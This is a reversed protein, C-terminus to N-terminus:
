IDSNFHSLKSEKLRSPLFAVSPKTILFIRREIQVKTKQETEAVKFHILCPSFSSLVPGMWAPVRSTLALQFKHWPWPFPWHGLKNKQKCLVEHAGSLPSFFTCSKPCHGVVIFLTRLTMRQASTCFTRWKRSSHIHLAKVTAVAVSGISAILHM